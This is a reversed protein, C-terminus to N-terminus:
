HGGHRDEPDGNMGLVEPLMAELYARSKESPLAAATVYIHGLMAAQCEARLAAEERLAVELEPTVSTEALVLEKVRSRASAIRECLSECTPLYQLHLASLRAFEEDSLDFEHRLWELEPLQSHGDHGHSAPHRSGNPLSRVALFGILGAAVAVLFILPGRKM